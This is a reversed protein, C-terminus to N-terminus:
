LTELNQLGFSTSVANEVTVFVDPDWTFCHNPLTVQFLYKM